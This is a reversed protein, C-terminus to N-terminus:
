RHKSGRMVLIIFTQKINTLPTGLVSQSGACVNGEEGEGGGGGGGRGDERDLLGRDPTKKKLRMLRFHFQKYVENEVINPSALPLLFFAYAQM